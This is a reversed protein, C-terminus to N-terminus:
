GADTQAKTLKFIKRGRDQGIERIRNLGLHSGVFEAFEEQGMPRYPNNMPQKERDYAEFIMMRCRLRSLFVELEDFLKKKKLAHHFVNLALVIDYELNDLKSYRGQIFEFDKGCLDRIQKGASAFAASKEVATVKYGLDTLWHSFAGMYCGIELVTGGRYELHPEIILQREKPDHGAPWDAFDPHPIKAYLKGYTAAAIIARVEEKLSEPAPKPYLTLIAGATQHASGSPIM